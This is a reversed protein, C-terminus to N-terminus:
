PSVKIAQSELKTRGHRFNLLIGSQSPSAVEGGPVANITLTSTGNIPVPNPSLTATYKPSAPTYRLDGIFDTVDGTFYNDYAFLDITLPTAHSVGGPLGLASYPVSYIVNASNFDADTFTVATATTTGAKQVYVVSQGTVGVGSLEQQFVYYDAVGDGTTDIDVEFGGPYLPHSRPDYTTMLFQLGLNPANVTGFNIERVGFSQVDVVAYNQGQKPLSTVPVRSSTAILHFVDTAGDVAGNANTVPVSATGNTLTVNSSAARTAAAKHPLIHFPLSLNDNGENVHIYGDVEFNTLLPGNGGASGGNLTWAPLLAPNVTLTVVFEASRRGPVTISAPMSVTVAGTNEDNAFRFTRSLNFTRSSPLLNQVRVTKTFSRSSSLRHTGFSLSPQDPPGPVFAIAGANLAKDVRVEGAGIRSIPALVGPQTAQNMYIDRFANNMLLSKITTPSADFFGEKLLTASGAVMPAAGSTGSFANEGTGTGAIASVSNGPAGIEPKIANFSLSPGRSSSSIMSGAVSTFNNESITANVPGNALAKRLTSNPGFGLTNQIVLTPPYSGPDPGGFSFSPPDGAANNAILTGVAGMDGFRDVKQSISCAGRDILAIKGSVMEPTVGSPLPDAPDGPNTHNAPCGQGVYIVDATVTGVVPAWSVSNTNTYTGAISGDATSGSNVVLAFLKASPVTTNAVSITEAAVSPSGVIFPKDSSNGASLVVTVGLRAANAAAEVSDDENQGYPAGVSMNIIDVRDSIDGDFNPDLAADFGLLIAVGNCGTTLSSCVKFAYLSAGPAVGKHTGDESAGAIIDAVHTGHTGKDIPDPDETRPGLTPWLEGVFDYGGIVKATPFLGDTTTNRPDQHSTGWAAEYAALTGPGGMNKHTYDIGSDLVAVRVGAGTFGNAQAAGAGIYPVTEELHMEYTRVRRVSRVGEMKEIAPIQKADVTVVVANLSKKMAATKRAGVADLRGILSNQDGDLEGLYARQADAGLPRNAAVADAQRVALSPKALQVVVEVEGTTSDGHAPPMAPVDIARAPVRLNKPIQTQASLGAATLASVALAFPLRFSSKIKM